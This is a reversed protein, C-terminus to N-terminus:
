DHYMVNCGPTARQLEEIGHGEVACNRDIYVEFLEPVGRLLLLHEDTIDNGYLEVSTVEPLAKLVTATDANLQRADLGIECLRQCRRLAQLGAPTVSSYEVSLDLLSELPLMALGTDTVASHGMDVGELVNMSTLARAVNDTFVESAITVAGVPHRELLEIVDLETLATGRIKIGDIPLGELYAHERLWESDVENGELELRSYFTVEGRKWRRLRDLISDGSQYYGGANEIESKLWEQHLHRHLSYAVTAVVVAAGAM